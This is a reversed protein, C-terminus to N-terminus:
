TGSSEYLIRGQHHAEYAISNVLNKCGEFSDTDQVLVDFPYGLRRLQRRLFRMTDLQNSVTDFVVLLDIDSDDTMTGTAASGFLIIKRPSSVAILRQVIEDFTAQDPRAGKEWAVSL